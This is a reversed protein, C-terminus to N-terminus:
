GNVLAASLHGMTRYYAQPPKGAYRKFDRIMHAQDFYGSAMAANLWASPQDAQLEDFLSRFRLISSLRKPTLGICTKFRRELQRSSIATASALTEPRWQGQSTILRQACSVVVEDRPNAVPLTNLWGAAISIRSADAEAARLKKLAAEASAGCLATLPIRVDITEPLSAAFYRHAGWPWLRIGLVSSQMSARLRLPRTIQGAFL